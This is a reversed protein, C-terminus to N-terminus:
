VGVGVRSLAREIGKVPVETGRKPVVVVVLRRSGCAPGGYSQGLQRFRESRSQGGM